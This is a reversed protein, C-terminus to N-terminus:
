FRDLTTQDKNVQMLKLFEKSFTNQLIFREQKWTKYPDLYTDVTGADLYRMIDALKKRDKIGDYIRTEFWRRCSHLGIRYRKGTKDLFAPHERAIIKRLKAFLAVASPTRMHPAKRSSYYPFLYGDKFTHHNRLVYAKIMEQLEPILPLVDEVHSKSMVVRLRAFDESFDVLNIALVESIRLGRFLCFALILQFKASWRKAARWLTGVEEDTMFYNPRKTRTVANIVM